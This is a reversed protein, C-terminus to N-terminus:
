GEILADIERSYAARALCQLAEDKSNFRLTVSVSIDEPFDYKRNNLFRILEESSGFVRSILVKMRRRRRGNTVSGFIYDKFSNFGLCKPCISYDFTWLDREKRDIYRHGCQCCEVAIGRHTYIQLIDDVTYNSLQEAPVPDGISNSDNSSDISTSNISISNGNDIIDKRENREKEKEEKKLEIVVM